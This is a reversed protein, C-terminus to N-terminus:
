IRYFSKKGLISSYLGSKRIKYKSLNIKDSKIKCLIIKLNTRIIIPIFYIISFLFGYHKKHFYFKSWIFHWIRLNSQKIKEEQNNTEVSTGNNHEIKINNIQYNKHQKKSRKCFDNEEFYLFINEDFGGLKDFNKKYFFMCAGNLYRMTAISNNDFSQKCSKPNANLYRPGLVSFKNDLFKAAKVFEIIKDFSLSVIDPNSILFYKTKIFQSGFNIAAGYGNNDTIHMDVGPYNNNIIKKLELDDSNDIILINIKKYLDKIFNLVLNKSKHSLIMLTVEQKM